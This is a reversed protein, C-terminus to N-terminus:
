PSFTAPMRYAHYDVSSEAPRYYLSCILVLKLGHGLLLAESKDIYDTTARM